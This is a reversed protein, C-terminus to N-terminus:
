TQVRWGGILIGDVVDQGRLRQAGEVVLLAHALEGPLRRGHHHLVKRMNLQSYYRVIETAIGYAM